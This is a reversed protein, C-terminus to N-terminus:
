ARGGTESDEGSQAGEQAYRALFARAENVASQTIKKEKREFRVEKNRGPSQERSRSRDRVAGAGAENGNKRGRNKPEHTFYCNPGYSCSGKNAWQHCSGREGQKSNANGREQWGQRNVNGRKMVEHEKEMAANARATAAIEVKHEEDMATVRFRVKRTVYEAVIEWQAMYYRGEVDLDERITEYRSGTPMRRVLNYTMNTDSIVSVNVVGAYRTLIVVRDKIQNLQEIRYLVDQDTICYGIGDM